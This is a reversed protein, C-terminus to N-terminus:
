INFSRKDNKMADSASSEMDPFRADLAFSRLVFNSTWVSAIENRREGWGADGDYEVHRAVGAPIIVRRGGLIGIVPANKPRKEDAETIWPAALSGGNIVAKEKNPADGSVVLAFFLLINFLLCIASVFAISYKIIRM